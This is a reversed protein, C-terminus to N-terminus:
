ALLITSVKKLTSCFTRSPDPRLYLVMSLPRFWHRKEEPVPDKVGTGDRFPLEDVALVGRLLEQVGDIHVSLLESEAM